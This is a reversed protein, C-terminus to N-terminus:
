LETNNILFVKEFNLLEVFDKLEEVSASTKILYYHESDMFSIVCNKHTSPTIGESCFFLDGSPTTEQSTIERHLRKQIYTQNDDAAISSDVCFVSVQYVEDRFTVYSIIGIDELPLYPKLLFINAGDREFLTIADESSAEDSLVVRYVFGSRCIVDCMEQYKIQRDESYQDLNPNTLMGLIAEFSDVQISSIPPPTDENDEPKFQSSETSTNSNTEHFTSQYQECGTLLFIVCLLCVVILKTLTYKKM